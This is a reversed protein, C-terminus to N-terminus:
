SADRMGSGCHWGRAALALGGMSMGVRPGVEFGLCVAEVVDRGTTGTVHQASALVSPIVCAASHVPGFQHYDDLEFGQVFDPVIFGGRGGTRPTGGWLSVPGDGEIECIARVALDSWPM